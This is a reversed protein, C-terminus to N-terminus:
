GMQNPIPLRGVASVKETPGSVRVICVAYRAKKAAKVAINVMLGVTVADRIKPHGINRM